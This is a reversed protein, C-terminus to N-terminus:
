NPHLPNSVTLYTIIEIQESTVPNLAIDVFRGQVKEWENKENQLMNSAYEQFSQHLIGVFVFKGDSRSAYEAIQQYLYNDESHNSVAYELLKGMEDLVIILGAEEKLNKCYREIASVLETGSQADDLESIGNELCAKKIIEFLSVREGVITITKWAKHEANFARLLKQKTLEPYSKTAESRQLDNGKLANLLSLALTSKGSGYPGTWTYAGQKTEGAQHDALTNLFRDITNSYVFNAASFEDLDIRASRCFQTQIPVIASLKIIDRNNM